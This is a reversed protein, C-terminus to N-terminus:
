HPRTEQTYNYGRIIECFSSPVPGGEVHRTADALSNLNLHSNGTNYIEQPGPTACHVIAVFDCM